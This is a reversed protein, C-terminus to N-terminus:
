ASFSPFMMNHTLTDPETEVFVFCINFSDGVTEVEM